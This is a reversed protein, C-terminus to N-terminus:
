FPTEHHQPVIYIVTSVAHVDMKEPEESVRQRPNKHIKQYTHLEKQVTKQVSKQILKIQLNSIM